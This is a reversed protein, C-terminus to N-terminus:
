NQVVRWRKLKSIPRTEMIKVKDGVNVQNDECHAYYKKSRTIIKGYKDHPMISDVKVVITKNMKNSIVTGKKIKRNGRTQQEM